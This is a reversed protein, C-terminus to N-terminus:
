LKQSCKAFNTCTCQVSYLIDVLNYYKKTKNYYVLISVNDIISYLTSSYMHSLETFQGWELNSIGSQYIKIQKLWM